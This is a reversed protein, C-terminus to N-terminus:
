KNLAERTKKHKKARECIAKALAKAIDPDALPLSMLNDNHHWQSKGLYFMLKEGDVEVGEFLFTHPTPYMVDVRAGLAGDKVRLVVESPDVNVEKIAEHLLDIIIGAGALTLYEGNGTV